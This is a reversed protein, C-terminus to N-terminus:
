APEVKVFESVAKFEPVVHPVYAMTWTAGKHPIAHQACARRVAWPRKGRSRVVLTKRRHEQAKKLRRRIDLDLRMLRAVTQRADERRPEKVVTCKINQGPKINELM